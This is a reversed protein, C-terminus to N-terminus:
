NIPSSLFVTIEGMLQRGVRQFESGIHTMTKINPVIIPQWPNLAPFDFEWPEGDSGKGPSRVAVGVLRLKPLTCIPFLWVKVSVTVFLPPSLRVIECAVDEVALKVMAPRLKGSVRAGLPLLEKLTRNAGLTVPAFVPVSEIVFLAELAGRLIAREPVPVSSATGAVSVAVGALTVKVPPCTPLLCFWLTLTCFVPPDLAVMEWAETVPVPKLIEPNLVGSVNAGPSLADRVTLKVGCDEPVEVPLTVIADFAEFAFRVIENLPDVLPDACPCNLTVGPVILKPFTV